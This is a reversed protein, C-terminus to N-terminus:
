LVWQRQQLMGKYREPDQHRRHHHHDRLHLEADELFGLRTEVTILVLWKDGPPYGLSLLECTLPFLHHGLMHLLEMVLAVM